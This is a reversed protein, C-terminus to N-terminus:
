HAQLGLGAIAISQLRRALAPGARVCPRRCNCMCVHLALAVALRYRDIRQEAPEIVPSDLHMAVYAHSFTVTAACSM